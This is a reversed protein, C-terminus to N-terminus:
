FVLDVGLTIGSFDGQHSDGQYLDAKLAANSHFDYRLSIGQMDFARQAFATEIQEATERLDDNSVGSVFDYDADQSFDEHHLTVVYNGFRRGVAIYYGEDIADTADEVGAMTFEVDLLWNQYDIGFGAYVYYHDKGHWGITNIYDQYEPKINGQADMLEIGSDGEDLIGQAIGAVVGTNFDPFDIESIWGGGFVKWWDQSLEVNGGLIDKVALSAYSSTSSLFAEGNWNGYILKTQLDSNGISFYSDLSIGEIASFDVEQYVSKPLRAFNNTYGVKEYEAQYYLPNVLRGVNVKHNNNIQYSVYAWRAEVDFDKSGEALFQVVATLGEGLDASAQLAFLSEEKFSLDESYPVGGQESSEELMTGARVSAFGNFTVESFAPVSLALCTLAIPLQYYKM